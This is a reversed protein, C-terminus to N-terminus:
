IFCGLPRQVIQHSAVTLRVLVTCIELFLMSKDTTDKSQEDACEGLIILLKSLNCM